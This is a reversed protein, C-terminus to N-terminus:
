YQLPIKAYRGPNTENLKNVVADIDSPSTSTTKDLMDRIAIITTSFDAFTPDSDRPDIGLPQLLKALEDAPTDLRCYVIAIASGNGNGTSACSVLGKVPQGHLRATFIAGGIRHERSDEFAGSITPPSDFYNSIDTFGTKLAALATNDFPKAAATQGFDSTALVKYNDPLVGAPQTSPMITYSTPETSPQTSPDAWATAASIVSIGVFLSALSRVIPKKM